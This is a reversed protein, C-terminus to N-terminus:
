DGITLPKFPSVRGVIFSCISGERTPGFPWFTSFTDPVAGPIGFAIALEDCGYLANRAVVATPLGSFGRASTVRTPVLTLPIVRAWISSWRGLSSLNGSLSTADINARHLNAVDDPGLSITVFKLVIPDIYVAVQTMWDALAAHTENVDDSTYVLTATTYDRHEDIDLNLNARNASRSLLSLIGKVTAGSVELTDSHMMLDYLDQIPLDRNSRLPSNDSLIYGYEPLDVESVTHPVTVEISYDYYRPEGPQLEKNRSSVRTKLM